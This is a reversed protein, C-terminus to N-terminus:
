AWKGEYYLTESYLQYVLDNFEPYSLLELRNRNHVVTVCLTSVKHRDKLLMSATDMAQQVSLTKNLAEKNTYRIM